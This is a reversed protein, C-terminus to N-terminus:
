SGTQRNGNGWPQSYISDNPFPFEAALLLGSFSPHVFCWSVSHLFPLGADLCGIAELPCPLCISPCPYASGHWPCQCPADQFGKQGESTCPSKWLSPVTKVWPFTLFGYGTEVRTLEQLSRFREMALSPASLARHPTKPLSVPERARLFSGWAPLPITISTHHPPVSYGDACGLIRELFLRPKNRLGVPLSADEQHGATGTAAM